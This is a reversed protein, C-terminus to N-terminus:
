PQLSIPIVHDVTNGADKCYKCLYGDRELIIEKFTEKGYLQHILTDNVIGAMREKVM